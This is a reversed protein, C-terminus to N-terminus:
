DNMALMAVSAPRGFWWEVWDGGEFEKSDVIEVRDQCAKPAIEVRGSAVSHM